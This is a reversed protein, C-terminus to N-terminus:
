LEKLVYMGNPLTQVELLGQYCRAVMRRFDSLRLSGHDKDVWQNSLYFTEGDVDFPEEFWRTSTSRTNRELLEDFSCSIFMGNLSFEGDKVVSLLQNRRFYTKMSDLKDLHYLQKVADLVFGNVVRNKVLCGNMADNNIEAVMDTGSDNPMFQGDEDEETEHEDWEVEIGLQPLYKALIRLDKVKQENSLQRLVYFGDVLKQPPSVNKERLVETREVICINKDEVQHWADHHDRNNYIFELGIKKLAKVWTGVAKREHFVTGDAFKVCFGVSARKQRRETMMPKGPPPAVTEETGSEPTDSEEAPEEVSEEQHPRLYEIDIGEGPTHGVTIKIPCRLKSIAEAAAQRILPIVEQIVYEDEAEAIAKEQEETLPNGKASFFDMAAYLKDIDNM